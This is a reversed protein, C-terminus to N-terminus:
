NIYSESITLIQFKQVLITVLTSFMFIGLAAIPIELMRIAVLWYKVQLYLLETFILVLTMGNLGLKNVCFQNTCLLFFLLALLLISPISPLFLPSFSFNLSQM